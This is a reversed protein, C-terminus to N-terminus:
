CLRAYSDHFRACASSFQAGLPIITSTVRVRFFLPQPSVNRANKSGDNPKGFMLSTGQMESALLSSLSFTTNNSIKKNYDVLVDSPTSM